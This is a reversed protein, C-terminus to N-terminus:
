PSNGTLLGLRQERVERALRDVRGLLGRAHNALRRLGRGITKPGPPRKSPRGTHGGLQAIALVAQAVTLIPTPPLSRSTLDRLAELEVPSFEVVAPTNPATKSLYSLRLTRVAVAALILSWKIRHGRTHLQIEEVECHAAKWTAHFEEIRWRFSYATLVERVATETDVAWTTLLLWEIRHPGPPVPGEERACVVNVTAAREERTRKDRLCLTVRTARVTLRAIRAPRNSRAPVELDYAFVIPANQVAQRLTEATPDHAIAEGDWLRRDWSARITTHVGEEATVADWVIPWADAERDHQFWLMVGPAYTARLACVETRVDLWVQTEKDKTARRAHHVTVRQESRIWWRQACLGLPTGEPTLALATHVKDGRSQKPPTGLPGTERLATRDTVTLSSGDTAVVLYPLGQARRMTAVHSAHAVASCKVHPNELLDYAGHLQAPDPFVKAVVGSPTEAACEAMLVLRRVRRVDGLEAHGFEEVAWAQNTTEM